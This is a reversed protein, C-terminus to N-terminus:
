EGHHCIKPGDTNYNGTQDRRGHWYGLDVIPIRGCGVYDWGWTGENCYRMDATCRCPDGGGVYYGDDHPGNSPRALCSVCRPNGAREDGTKWEQVFLRGLCFYSSDSYVGTGGGCIACKRNPHETPDLLAPHDGAFARAAILMFFASALLTRRTSISYFM